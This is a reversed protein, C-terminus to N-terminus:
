YIYPLLRKTKEMYQRYEEAFHMLLMREELRIRYIFACTIPIAITCFSLWNGFSLGLGLFSILSGTYSPHRIKSYLGDTKLSHDDQIAINTTFKSRLSLIAIIRLLMGVVILVIGSYFVLASPSSFHFSEFIAATISLSIVIWIVLISNRDFSVASKKNSRLLFSILIEFSIWIISVLLLINM